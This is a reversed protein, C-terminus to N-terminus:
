VNNCFSLKKCKNNQFLSVKALKRKYLVPELEGFYHLYFSNVDTTGKVEAVAQYLKKVNWEKM